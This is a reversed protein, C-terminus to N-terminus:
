SKSKNLLDLTLKKSLAVGPQNFANINSHEGISAVILQYFMFLYGLSKEKLDPIEFAITSIESNELAMDTAMAEARILEGFNMKELLKTESFQTKAVIFKSKEVDNFRFVNVFKNKPGEIVQQLISHQDCTGISIMPSSFEPAPKGDNTVKKGLSEAWLQQLWCGFWRMRSSYFWFLTIDEKREFSSLYQNMATVINNKDTLALKAGELLESASQGLYQAVVLGVPSLVSFRGGVDLPVELSPRDYKKALNNLTNDTNETIYFTNPWFPINNQRYIQEVLELTWLVEITTGSKSIFLWATKSLDKLNTIINDTEISDVNDLFSIRHSGSIESLARPGMSSGGIGVLVLHEYNKLVYSGLDSSKKLAEQNFPLRTFGLDPRALVKDLSTMLAENSFNMKLKNNPKIKIM